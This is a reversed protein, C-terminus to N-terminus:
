FRFNPLGMQELRCLAKVRSPATNSNYEIQIGSQAGIGALFDAVKNGERFIHSVKWDLGQVEKRIRAMELCVESSGLQESSLWHVVQEADSEIWVRNGHRKALVVGFRLALVEAELGSSCGEFGTSFAALIEGEHDRVVGGGGARQLEHSFAGDVNLKIWDVDPPRWQVRGVKRRKVERAVGTMVDLQPSCKRWQDPGILKSMVLSRLHSIVRKIVNEAEFSKERHVNENREFWLFWFILCPLINCLHQGSRLGLHRQWWIFRVEINEGEEGFTPVQPFWRAFHQWM